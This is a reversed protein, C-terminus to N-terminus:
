ADLLEPGYRRFSWVKEVPMQAERQALRVSEADPARYVCIMHRRDSSFFSRLFRVRHLELCAAAAEELAQIGAFEVPADFRRTVAVNGPPIDDGSVGPADHMTGPWLRAVDAGVQQLAIRASEADPAAFHCVLDRGDASLMSGRWAVRHLEFCDQPMTAMTQMDAETLPPDWSRELIVNVIARDRM